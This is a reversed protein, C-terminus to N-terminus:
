VWAHTRLYNLIVAYGDPGIHLGDGNGYKPDMYGTSDTLLGYVDSYRVNKGAAYYERVLEKIWENDQMIEEITIRTYDGAATNRNKEVPFISQAIIRTNPSVSLIGDILWRYLKVFKDKEDAIGQKPFSEYVFLQELVGYCQWKYKQVLELLQNALRDLAEESEEKGHIHIEFGFLAFEKRHLKKRIRKKM